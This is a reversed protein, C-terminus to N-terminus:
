GDRCARGVRAPVLGRGRRRNHQRAPGTDSRRHSRVRAARSLFERRSLARRVTGPRPQSRADIDSLIPDGKPRSTMGYSCIVSGGGCKGATDSRQTGYMAVQRGIDGLEREVRNVDCVWGSIVGLGSQNTISLGHWPRGRLDDSAIQSWQPVLCDSIPGIQVCRPDQSM